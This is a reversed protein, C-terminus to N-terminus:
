SRWMEVQLADGALRQVEAVTEDLGLVRDILHVGPATKKSPLLSVTAAIAYAAAVFGRDVKLTVRPPSEVGRNAVATLEVGSRRWRLLVRRLLGIGAAGLRRVLETELLRWPLFLTLVRQVTLPLPPVPALFAGTSPVGMSWHLMQSEPLGVGLVYRQGGRFPFVTGATLPPDEVRDGGDYRVAPRGLTSAMLSCVGAGAQSWPSYRVGVELRQVGEDSSVLDAALLNSLGPFLGAALLVIGTPEPVDKAARYLESIVQADASTEVFTMGSLLCYEAAKAPPAALGDACNVVVDFGEMATRSASDLIDLKVCGAGGRRSGVAVEVDSIRRLAAVTRSGLFGKGGVVLVRM